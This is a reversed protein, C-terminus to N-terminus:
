KGTRGKASIYSVLTVAEVGGSLCDAERKSAASRWCARHVRTRVVFGPSLQADISGVTNCPFEAWPGRALARGSRKRGIV